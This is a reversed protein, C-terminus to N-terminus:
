DEGPMANANSKDLLLETTLVRQSVCFLGPWCAPGM